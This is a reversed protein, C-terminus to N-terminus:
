FDTADHSSSFLRTAKNNGQLAPKQKQNNKEPTSKKKKKTPPKWSPVDFCTKCWPAPNIIKKGVFFNTSIRSQFYLSMFMEADLLFFVSECVCVCATHTESPRREWREVDFCMVCTSTMWLARKLKPMQPLLRSRNNWKNDAAKNTKDLPTFPSAM